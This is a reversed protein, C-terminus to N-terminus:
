TLIDYKTGVIFLISVKRGEFAPHTEEDRDNCEGFYKGECVDYEDWNRRYFMQQSSIVNLDANILVLIFAGIISQM